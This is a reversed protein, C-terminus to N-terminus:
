TKDGLLKDAEIIDRVWLPMDHLGDLMFIHWRKYADQFLLVPPTADREMIALIAAIAEQPNAEFMGDLRHDSM